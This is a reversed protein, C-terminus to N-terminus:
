ALDAPRLLIRRYRAMVSPDSVGLWQELEAEPTGRRLQRLAFTHRLRYSGGATSGEGATAIGAALLVAATAQYHSVKSWVKGGTRTGPFLATGTIGAESRVQLWHRLVQAAWRALPTEREPTLGDSAIHLKWPLGSTAAEPRPAPLVDTCRLARVEGPALGAGLMLAVSARNRVEQWPLTDGPPRARRRPRLASLHAVLRRADAPQLYAPLDDRQVANAHRIDAHTDLLAPVAANRSRQRQRAHTALVRDVLALLRWAYRPTLTEAAGSRSQLYAHLDTAQLRVLAIGQGVSWTALAEWMHQYVQVTTARRIRGAHRAEALWLAFAAQYDAWRAARSSSAAM